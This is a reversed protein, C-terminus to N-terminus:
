HCRSCEWLLSCRMVLGRVAYAKTSPCVAEISAEDHMLRAIVEGATEQRLLPCWAASRSGDPLAHRQACLADM